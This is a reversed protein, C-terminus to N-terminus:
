AYERSFNVIHQPYIRWIVQYSLIVSVSVDCGAIVSILYFTGNGRM